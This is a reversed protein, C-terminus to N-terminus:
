ISNLSICNFPLIFVCTSLLTTTIGTSRISDTLPLKTVRGREAASNSNNIKQLHHQSIQVM